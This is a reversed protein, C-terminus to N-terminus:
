RIRVIILFAIIFGIIAFLASYLLWHQTRYKSVLVFQSEFDNLFNTVNKDLDREDMPTKESLHVSPAGFFKLLDSRSIIGALLGGNNVVVIPNVRHHKSFTNVTEEISVNENLVLPDPNMADKVKMYLIKKIDGAILSKDKKYIQFETILKLFTPLHISSGKITLDYQTLIGAVAGYQDLVPMGNFRNKLLIDVAKILPTEPIVSIVKKTMFDKLLKKAPMPINYCM